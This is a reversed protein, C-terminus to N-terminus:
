VVRVNVNVMGAGPQGRVIRLDDIQSDDHYVGARQLSDLIGKPINDLDRRRKDPAYIRIVVALRAHKGLEHDGAHQEYVATAVRGRYARGDASLLTRGRVNRWYHNLSPPYPLFLNLTARMTEDILENPAKTLTATM